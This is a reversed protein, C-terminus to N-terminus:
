LAMYNTCVDIAGRQSETKETYLSVANM